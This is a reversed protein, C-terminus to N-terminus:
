NCITVTISTDDSFPMVKAYNDTIKPLDNFYILLFLSCVILGRLVGNIVNKWRSFIGDHAIITSILLIQYRVTLYHHTLTQFKGSIGYRELKAVKIGRNVCDFAKELDCL